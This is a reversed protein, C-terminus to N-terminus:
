KKEPVYYDIVMNQSNVVLKIPDGPHPTAGTEGPRDLSVFRPMTLGQNEKDQIIEVEALRGRIFKIEGEIVRHGEPLNKTMTIQQSNDKDPSAAGGTGGIFFTLAGIGMFGTLTSVVIQKTFGQTMAEGKQFSLRSCGPAKDGESACVYYNERRALGDDCAVKARGLM